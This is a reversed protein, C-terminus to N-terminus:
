PYIVFSIMENLKIKAKISSEYNLFNVSKKEVIIYM